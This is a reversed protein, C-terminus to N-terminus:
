TRKGKERLLADAWAADEPDLPPDPNVTYDIDDYRGEEYCQDILPQLDLPVDADTERLPISIVPLRERLPVRYVEVKLPKWGRRICIQYPTRYNAPISEPPIVFARRGARLLDIEVLSVGAQKTEKQKQRHLKRGTGPQKNSLSLIEIVTVVRHGSGAERIEIFGETVPEDAVDLIVPEAVAVGSQPFAVAQSQPREVVRVDPYSSREMGDASELYVREEVRARLDSPLVRQLQASAYTIIRHHVDRWHAELYPDMGPFPSRIM